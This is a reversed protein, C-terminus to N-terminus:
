LVTQIIITDTNYYHRYYNYYHKIKMIKINNVYLATYNYYHKIKM